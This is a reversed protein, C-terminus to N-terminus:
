GREFRSGIQAEQLQQLGQKKGSDAIEKDRLASIYIISMLKSDESMTEFIDSIKTAEEDFEKKFKRYEEFSM